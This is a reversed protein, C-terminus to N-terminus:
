AVSNVCPIGYMINIPRYVERALMLMNQSFGSVRYVKAQMAHRIQPSYEDWTSVNQEGYCRIIQLLTSNYYEVQGNPQPWYATTRKNAM